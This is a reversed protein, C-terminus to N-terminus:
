GIGYHDIGKEENLLNSIVQISQKLRPHYIEKANSIRTMINSYNVIIGEVLDLVRTSTVEDTALAYDLCQVTKAFDFCKGRYALSIFPKNVSAALVNAHLKVNISFYCNQIVKLLTRADYVISYYSCNPRNVKSALRKVAIRDETWIPYITIKYGRDLLQHIVKVLEDEVLLEDNGFIHNYSTGWNVIVEKSDTTKFTDGLMESAYFLAPDGIEHITRKVGINRLMNKTFPGRVSLYSFADYISQYRSLDGNSITISEFDEIKYQEDYGTGWSVVPIGKGIAEECINLWYLLHILSGGGLVILDYTSVNVEYNEVIPYTDITFSINNRELTTYKYLMNKFLEFLMDDGVNGEGLWGLYLINKIHVM